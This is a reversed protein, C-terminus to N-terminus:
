TWRNSPCSLFTFFKCWSVSLRSTYRTEKGMLEEGSCNIMNHITGNHDMVMLVSSEADAKKLTIMNPDPCLETIASLLLAASLSQFGDLQTCNGAKATFHIIEEGIM